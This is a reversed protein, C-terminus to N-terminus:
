FVKEFYEVTYRVSLFTGMATPVVVFAPHVAYPCSLYVLWPFYVSPLIFSRALYHRRSSERGTDYKRIDRRTVGYSTGAFIALLYVPLSLLLIGARFVTICIVVGIAIIYDDILEWYNDGVMGFNQDVGTVTLLGLVHDNIVNSVIKLLAYPSVGLVESSYDQAIYSQETLYVEISHRAGIEPYVFTIFIVELIVSLFLAGVVVAISKQIVIFIKSKEEQHKKDDRDKDGM